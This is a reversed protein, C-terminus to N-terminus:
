NLKKQFLIGEGNNWQLTVSQNENLINNSKTSWITNKTPVKIKNNISTWGTEIYFGNETNSPNLFEINKNNELNQKHNKFSIDDILGGRLSLSGIVNNNEIKVREDKNLSEERSLKKVQVIENISPTIVNENNKEQQQVINNENQRPQEFFAAWFLLVSMSLAIAIFVNKNDM